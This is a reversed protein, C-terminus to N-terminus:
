GRRQVRRCSLRRLSTTKASIETSYRNPFCFQNLSVPFCLTFKHTSEEAKWVHIGEAFSLFLKRNRCSAVNVVSIGNASMKLEESEGFDSSLALALSKIPTNAPKHRMAHGEKNHGLM